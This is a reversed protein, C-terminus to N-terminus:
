ETTGENDLRDTIDTLVDLLDLAEADTVKHPNIRYFRRTIERYLQRKDPDPSM